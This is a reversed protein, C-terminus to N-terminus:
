KLYYELLFVDQDTTNETLHLKLSSPYITLNGEQPTFRFVNSNLINEADWDIGTGSFWSDASTEYQMECGPPYFFVVGSFTVDSRSDLTLSQGPEIKRVYSEVIDFKQRDNIGILAAFQKMQTQILIRWPVQQTAVDNKVSRNTEQNLLLSNAHHKFGLSVETQQIYIPLGFVPVVDVSTFQVRNVTM